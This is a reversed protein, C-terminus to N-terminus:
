AGPEPENRSFLFALGLCISIAIAFVLPIVFFYQLDLIATIVFALFFTVMIPRLNGANKKAMAAVQWLAVGIALMLVSIALGFGVYFDWYTRMAGAVDFAHAKMQAVAAMEQEGTAPTWPYGSTHGAFLLVTLISAIRLFLTPKM